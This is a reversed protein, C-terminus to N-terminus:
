AHRRLLGTLMAAVRGARHMVAEGEAQPALGLAVVAEAGAAVEGCEGRAEGFRQRKHGVSRRNAGEAILLVTNTAARMMHDALSRHGRPVREQLEKVEVMLELAVRYVDLKHHPFPFRDPM